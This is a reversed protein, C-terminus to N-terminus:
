FTLWRLGMASGTRVEWGQIMEQQNHAHTVNLFISHSMFGLTFDITEEQKLNETRELPVTYNYAIHHANIDCINPISM